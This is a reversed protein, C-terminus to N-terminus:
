LEISEVATSGSSLGELVYMPIPPEILVPLFPSLLQMPPLNDEMRCRPIRNIEVVDIGHTCLISKAELHLRNPPEILM